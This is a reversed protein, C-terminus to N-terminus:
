SENAAVGPRWSTGGIECISAAQRVVYVRMNWGTFYMLELVCRARCQRCRSVRTPLVRVIVDVVKVRRRRYPEFRYPHPLSM